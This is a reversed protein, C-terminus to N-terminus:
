CPFKTSCSTCSYSILDQVDDIEIRAGKVTIGVENKLKKLARSFTEPKMGLKSAILTKDYPLTIITKNNEVIPTQKLLFCGIREPATQLSRHEIEIDQRKRALAVNSLFGLTFSHNTEIENKFLSMPISILISEDVSDASYGYKMNEFIAHDGFIDDTSLVDIIAQDGNETERYLRVWGTLIIYLYEAEQGSVFLLQGKKVHKVQAKESLNKLSTPSCNRFVTAAKLYNEIKETSYTHAM